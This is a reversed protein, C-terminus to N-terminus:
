PSKKAKPHETITDNNENACYVTGDAGVAIGTPGGVGNTITLRRSTAGPKYVTISSDGVNTAYLKLSKDVFLRESEVPGDLDNRDTRSQNGEVRLDYDHQRRLQRFLYRALRSKGGGVLQRRQFRRTRGRTVSRSIM